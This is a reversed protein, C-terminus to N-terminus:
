LAIVLAPDPPPWENRSGPKPVTLMCAPVVPIISSATLLQRVFPNGGSL